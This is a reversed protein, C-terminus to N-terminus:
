CKKCLYVKMNHIRSERMESRVMVSSCYYCEEEGASVVALREAMPKSKPPLRKVAVPREPEDGDVDDDEDVIPLSM